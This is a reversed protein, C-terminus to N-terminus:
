YLREHSADFLLVEGVFGTLGAASGEKPPFFPLAAPILDPKAALVALAVLAFWGDAGSV